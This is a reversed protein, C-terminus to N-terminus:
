MAWYLRRWASKHTASMTPSEESKSISSEDTVKATPRSTNQTSKGRLQKRGQQFAQRPSSTHRLSAAPGASPRAESAAGAPGIIRRPSAVMACSRAIGKAPSMTNAKRMPARLNMRNSTICM